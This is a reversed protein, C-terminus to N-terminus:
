EYPSSFSEAFSVAKLFIEEFAVIENLEISLGRVLESLEKDESLEDSYISTVIMLIETILPTFEDIKITELCLRLTCKLFDTDADKMLRMFSRKDSIFKLVAFSQELSNDKFCKKLAEKYMFNGLLREVEIAVRKNSQIVEYNIEDEYPRCKGMSKRQEEVTKKAELSYIKGAELVVFPVDNVISFSILRSNFNFNSINKLQQNFSKFRGDLSCSYVRDKYLGLGTIERTHLIAGSEIAFNNTNFIYAKNKSVFLINEPSLNIADDISLGFDVKTLLKYDCLSYLLINKSFVVLKNGVELLKRPLEDGLDLKCISKDGTLDYFNVFHDKAASVVTKSSTIIIDTIGADHGQFQRIAARHGSFIRVEGSLAGACILQHHTSLATIEAKFGAIKKQKKEKLSFLENKSSFVHHGEVSIFHSIPMHADFHLDFIDTKTDRLQYSNSLIFM